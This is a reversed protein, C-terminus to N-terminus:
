GRMKCFFFDVKKMCCCHSNKSFSKNLNTSHFGLRVADQKYEILTQQIPTFKEHKWTFMCLTYELFNFCIHPTTSPMYQDTFDSIILLIIPRYRMCGSAFKLYILFKFFWLSLSILQEWCTLTPMKTRQWSYIVIM